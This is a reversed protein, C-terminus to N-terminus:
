GVPTRLHQSLDGVLDMRYARSTFRWAGDHREFTDLYRGNCVTRLEGAVVSQLVTFRSRCTATDGDVVIELNTTVHSTRPSGDHLIVTARWQELLEASGITGGRMPITAHQLLGAAEEWRGADFYNAYAFLLNAIAQEDSTSM